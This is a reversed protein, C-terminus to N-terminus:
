PQLTMVLLKMAPEPMKRYGSTGPSRTWNYVGEVKMGLLEAIEKASLGRRRM